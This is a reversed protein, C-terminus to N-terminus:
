LSVVRLEFSVFQLYDADLGDAGSDEGFEGAAVVRGRLRGGGRAFQGWLRSERFRGWSDRIECLEYTFNFDPALRGAAM